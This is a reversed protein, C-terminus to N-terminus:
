FVHIQIGVQLGGPFVAWLLASWAPPLLYLPLATPSASPVHSPSSYARIQLALTLLPHMPKPSSSQQFWNLWLFHLLYPQSLLGLFLSRSCSASYELLQASGCSGRRQSLLPTWINPHSLVRASQCSTPGGWEDPQETRRCTTPVAM